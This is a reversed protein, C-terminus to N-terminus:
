RILGNIVVDLLSDVTSIVKASANYAHQFQILNVMEEDLSVGSVSARGGEINLMLASQNEIQKKTMQVKYGLDEVTSNYYNGMTMRTGNFDIKKDRLAFLANAKDPTMVLSSPNEVLEDNVKMIVNGDNDTEIEFIDRADEAGPFTRNVQNFEDAITTMLTEINDKYKQIDEKVQLAGQLEGSMEIGNLEALELNGDSIANRVDANNLDIKFSLEDILQDKMDMLDNANKGTAEIIKIQKDLEEIKTLKDNIDNVISEIQKDVSEEQSNLKNYATTLNTALFKANEVFMNKGSISNPDKSIENCTGFLSNISASISTDSPENFISEMGSYYSYEVSMSGYKHSEMRFQADYFSNRVRTIQSVQVGQGLQGAGLYSSSLGPHSYPRQAVMDVQQRTYYPNNMNTINQNTTQIAIQHAGMGTAASHLTGLLGSM